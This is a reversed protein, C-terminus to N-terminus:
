PARSAAAARPRALYDEGPARPMETEGRPVNTGTGEADGLLYMRIRPARATGTNISAVERTYAYIPVNWANAIHQLFTTAGGVSCALFVVRAVATARYIASIADYQAIDARLRTVRDVTARLGPIYSDRCISMADDAFGHEGCWTRVAAASARRGPLTAATRMTADDSDREYPLYDATDQTIRFHGEPALDVSGVDSRSGGAAAGHGVAYIVWGDVGARAAADRTASVAAEATSASMTVVDREATNAARFQDAWTRNDAYIGRLGSPPVIVVKM